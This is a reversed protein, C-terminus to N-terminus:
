MQKARSEVFAMAGGFGVFSLAFFFWWPMQAIMESLEGPGDLIVTVLCLILFSAATMLAAFLGGTFLFVFLVFQWTPRVIGCHEKEKKTLSRCEARKAAIRIYEALLDPDTQETCVEKCLRRGNSNFCCSYIDEATENKKLLATGCLFQLQLRDFYTHEICHVIAEVNKEACLFYSQGYSEAIKVGNVACKKRFNPYSGEYGLSHFRDEIEARIGCLKEGCSCLVKDSYGEQTQSVLSFLERWMAECKSENLKSCLRSILMYCNKEEIRRATIKNILSIIQPLDYKEAYSHLIEFSPLKEDKSVNWRSLAGLERLLPMADKERQNFYGDGLYGKDLIDSATFALTDWPSQSYERRDACFLEIEVTAHSFFICVPESTENETDEATFILKYGNDAKLIQADSFSFTSFRGVTSESTTHLILTRSYACSDDLSFIIKGPQEKIGDCYCMAEFLYLFANKVDKSFDATAKEFLQMKWTGYKEVKESCASLFDFFDCDSVADDVYAMVNKPFAEGDIYTKKVWRRIKKQKRLPAKIPEVGFAEAGVDYAFAFLEIYNQDIKSVDM